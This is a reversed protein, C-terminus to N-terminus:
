PHPELAIYGHKSCVELLEQSVEDLERFIPELTDKSFPLTKGFHKGRFPIYIPSVMEKERYAIVAHLVLNRDALLEGTRKLLYLLSARESENFSTKVLKEADQIKRRTDLIHITEARKATETNKLGSLLEGILFDVYASQIAIKGVLILLEAPLHNPLPRPTPM